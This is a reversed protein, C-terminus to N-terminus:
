GAVLYCSMASPSEAKFGRAQDARFDDLSAYGIVEWRITPDPDDAHHLYLVRYRCGKPRRELQFALAREHGRQQQLITRYPVSQCQSFPTLWSITRTKVYLRGYCSRGTGSFAGTFPPAAAAPAGAVAALLVLACSASIVQSGRSALM